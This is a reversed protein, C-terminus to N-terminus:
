PATDRERSPRAACHDCGGCGGDAGASKWRRWLSRGLYAAAGAVIAIVAALQATM